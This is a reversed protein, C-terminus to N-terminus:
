IQNHIRQADEYMFGKNYFRKKSHITETLDPKGGQPKMYVRTFELKQFIEERLIDLNFGDKASIPIYNKPIKIDPRTETKNVVVISPIYVRNSSVVDIMQEASIDERIIVQANHIAYASLIEYIEENLLKKTICTRTGRLGGKDVKVVSVDPKKVDLRVGVGYLEEKIREGIEMRNIDLVILALDGVRVM